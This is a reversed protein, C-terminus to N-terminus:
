ILKSMEDEQEYKSSIPIQNKNDFEIVIKCGCKTSM